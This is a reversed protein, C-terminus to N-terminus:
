ESHSIIFMRTSWPWLLSFWSIIRFFHGLERTEDLFYAIEYIDEQSQNYITMDERVLM